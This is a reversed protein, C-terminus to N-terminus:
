RQRWQGDRALDRRADRPDIHLPRLVEVRDGARLVRGMDVVRGWIALKCAALDLAPFEGAMGAQEVADIATSGAPVSLSVLAQRDPTATVVEVTLKNAPVM